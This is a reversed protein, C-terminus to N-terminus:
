EFQTQWIKRILKALTIPDFPKTIVDLAGLSKLYAIDDKHTKSTIFIVPTNSTESMKRLEALTETGDIGPMMVDLLLLDPNFDAAKELAEEGSSCIKVIFGGVTELAMRAFAQTNPEDEVYLITNLKCSGM